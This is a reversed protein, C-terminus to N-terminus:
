NRLYMLMIISKIVAMKEENDDDPSLSPIVDDLNVEKNKEKGEEGEDDDDDINEDIKIDVQKPNTLVTPTIVDEAGTGPLFDFESLDISEMKTEENM